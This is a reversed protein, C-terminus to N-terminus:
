KLYNWYSFGSSENLSRPFTLWDEASFAKSPRWHKRAKWETRRSNYFISVQLGNSKITYVECSM